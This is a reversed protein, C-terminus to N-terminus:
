LIYDRKKFYTIISSLTDDVAYCDKKAKVTNRREKYVDIIVQIDNEENHLKSSFMFCAIENRKCLIKLEESFDYTVEKITKLYDSDKFYILFGKIEEGYKKNAILM